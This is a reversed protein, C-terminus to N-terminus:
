RTRRFLQYCQIKTNLFNKHFSILDKKFLAEENKDRVELPCCYNNKLKIFATIISFSYTTKFSFVTDRKLLQWDYQLISFKYKWQFPLLEMKLCVRNYCVKWSCSCKITIANVNNYGIQVAITKLVILFAKASQLYNM